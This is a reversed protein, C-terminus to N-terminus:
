DQLCQHLRIWTRKAPTIVQRSLQRYAKINAYRNKSQNVPSLCVESSPAHEPEVAAYEETFLYDDNSHLHLVHTSLDRVTIPHFTGETHPSDIHCVVTLPTFESHLPALPNAIVYSSVATVAQSSVMDSM